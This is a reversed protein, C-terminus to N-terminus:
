RILGVRRWWAIRRQLRRLSREERAAALIGDPLHGGRAQAAIAKGLEGQVPGPTAGAGGFGGFTM